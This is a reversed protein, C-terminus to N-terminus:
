SLKLDNFFNKAGEKDLDKNYTKCRSTTYTCKVCGDDFKCVCENVLEKFKSPSGYKKDIAMHFSPNYGWSNNGDFENIPMLEITGRVM